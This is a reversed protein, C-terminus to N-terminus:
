RPTYFVISKDNERYIALFIDEVKKYGSERLKADLWKADLGARKLNEGMIKGDMIIETGIHSTPVSLNIDKPAIPRADSKPLISLKGNAEFVATKIEELDFYGQERCLLMFESLDLKAKKINERYLQGDNMLISPAGNIFKRTKPFKHTVINLIISVAGYIFIAILPKEPNELETALEAASSGITIGTIYDFFDLQAVQKHGMFKAIVFLSLASLLSTLILKLIDM